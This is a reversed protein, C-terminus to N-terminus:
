LSENAREAERKEKTARYGVISYTSAYVFCFGFFLVQAIAWFDLSLVLYGMLARSAAVVYLIFIFGFFFASPAVKRYNEISSCEM